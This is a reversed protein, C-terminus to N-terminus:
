PGQKRGHIGSGVNNTGDLALGDASLKVTDIWGGHRHTFRYLRQSADLLTWRGENIKNSSGGLVDFSGDARVVLTQGSVWNWTGVVGTGDTPPLVRDGPQAPACTYMRGPRQGGVCRETAVNKYTCGDDWCVATRANSTWSCQQPEPYRATTRGVDMGPCDGIGAPKWDGLNVHEPAAHLGQPGGNSKCAYMRGPRQGGTCRQSAVSKYTCGDDWCVATHAKSTPSCWGPEPLTSSSRGVDMGPCDGTGVAEWDGIPTPEVTPPPPPPPSGGAVPAGTVDHSRGAPPRGSVWVYEYRVNYGFSYWGGARFSLRPTGEKETKPTQWATRRPVVIYSEKQYTGPGYMRDFEGLQLNGRVGEKTVTDGGTRYMNHDAPQSVGFGADFNGGFFVKGYPKPRQVDVTILMPIKEGPVLIDPPPTWSWTHVEVLLSETYRHPHPIRCRATISSGSFELKVPYGPHRKAEPVEVWVRETFQWYGDAQTEAVAASMSVAILLALVSAMRLM